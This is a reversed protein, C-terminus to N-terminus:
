RAGQGPVVGVVSFASLDVEAQPQDTVVGWSGRRKARSVVWQRLDRYCERREELTLPARQIMSAYAWIYEAFLRAVPHRVPDARRPDLNACRKRVTPCAREARDPHDRRFYLWDPVQHFPGHLALETIFTRDAHHYSNLPKIRRLVQSRIVAGDDDGGNAFLMSRFREPAHPSGTKLPYDIARTVAGASDIMATWGHAAVVDPHEDLAEVCRRLLDRAYLDDHSAWKFLEGRSVDFVFNHNPACGLNNRQRIYRIRSDQAAFKRCIEETNDTSANDSIILEYDEHSQGLLAEISEALFNEGNYVPLGVSLRPVRKM